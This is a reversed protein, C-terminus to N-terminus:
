AARRGIASRQRAGARLRRWLSQAARPGRPTGAEVREGDPVEVDHEILGDRAGLLDAAFRAAARVDAVEFWSTDIVLADGVVGLREPRIRFGRPPVDAAERDFWELLKEDDVLTSRIVARLREQEDADSPPLGDLYRLVMQRRDLRLTEDNPFLLDRAHQFSDDLPVPWIGLDPVTPHPQFGAERNLERFEREVAGTGDEVLTAVGTSSRSLGAVSMPIGLSPYSAALYAFACGSYMDPYITPFVRGVRHRLRDVLDRRIVSTYIMPLMDAGVVYRAAQRLQERGALVRLRRDLPLILFDAQSADGITPWAYVVRKWHVVEPGDHEEIVRALEPLAYPMLADDDGLVTVYEGNALSVALEWNASMALPRESRHYSIRAADAEEVVNRTEVSGANDCVIIEYDDFEQELCTALTVRLTDARNRTPIVVSFRPSTNM